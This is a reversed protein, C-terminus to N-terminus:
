APLLMAPFKLVAVLPEGDANVWGNEDRETEDIKGDGWWTSYLGLPLDNNFYGGVPRIVGHIGEETLRCELYFKPFIQLMMALRAGQALTPRREGSLWRGILSLHVPKEPTSLRRALEAKRYPNTQINSPQADTYLKEWANRLLEHSESIRAASVTTLGSTM